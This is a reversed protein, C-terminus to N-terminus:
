KHPLVVDAAYLSATEEATSIDAISIAGTAGFWEGIGGTVAIDFTEMGKEMSIDLAVSALLRSGNDFVFAGDCLFHVGRGTRHV